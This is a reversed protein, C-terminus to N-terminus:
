TRVMRMRSEGDGYFNTLNEVWRFGNRAYLHVAPNEPHTVLEVRKGSVQVLMAELAMAGFGRGRYQEGIVFEDLLVHDEEIKYILFGLVMQDEQLVLYTEDDRIAAEIALLNMPHYTRSAAAEQFMLIAKAQPVKARELQITM